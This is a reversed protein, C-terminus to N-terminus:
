EGTEIAVIYRYSYSLEWHVKSLLPLIVQVVIAEVGKNRYYCSVYTSQSLPKHWTKCHHLQRREKLTSFIQSLISFLGITMM